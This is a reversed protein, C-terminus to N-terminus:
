KFNERKLNEEFKHYSEDNGHLLIDIMSNLFICNVSHANEFDSEDSVEDPLCTAVEVNLIWWNDIKNYLNLLKGFKEIEDNFDNKKIYTNVFNHILDGRLSRANVIFEIDENSIAGISEFWKLSAIFRDKHLTLVCDKYKSSDKFVVKGDKINYEEHFFIKPNNLAIYRIEEYVSNFLSSLIFAFGISERDYIKKSLTEKDLIEM